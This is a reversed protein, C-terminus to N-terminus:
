NLNTITVAEWTVEPTSIVWRRIWLRLIFTVIEKFRHGNPKIRSKIGLHGKRSSHAIVSLSLRQAESGYRSELEVDNSRGSPDVYQEVSTGPYRHLTSGDRRSSEVDFRQGASHISASSSM